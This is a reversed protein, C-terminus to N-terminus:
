EDITTKLSSETGYYKPVNGVIVTESVPIRASVKSSTKAQQTIVSVDVEAVIYITHRSQNIGCSEFSDYFDVDVLGLPRIKIKVDPGMGAFLENGLISGIPINIYQTNIKDLENDLADAICARIKNMEITNTKLASISGSSDKDLLVLESFNNNESDFVASVANNIAETAAKHGYYQLRQIFAPRIVTIFVIFSAGLSIAIISLYLFLRVKYKNAVARRM